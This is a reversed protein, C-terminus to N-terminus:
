RSKRHRHRIQVQEQGMRGEVERVNVGIVNM